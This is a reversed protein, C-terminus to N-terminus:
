LEGSRKSLVLSFDLCLYIICLIHLENPLFQVVGRTSRRWHMNVMPLPWIPKPVKIKLIGKFSASSFTHTMTLSPYFFISYHCQNSAPGCFLAEVKLFFRLFMKVQPPPCCVGHLVSERLKTNTSLHMYWVAFTVHEQWVLFRTPILILCNGRKTTLSKQKNKPIKWGVFAKDCRMSM